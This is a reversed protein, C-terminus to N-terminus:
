SEIIDKVDQVFKDREEGELSNYTNLLESCLLKKLSFSDVKIKNEKNYNWNYYDLLDMFNPDLSPYCEEVYYESIEGDEDVTRSPSLYETKEVGFIEYFKNFDMMIGKQM